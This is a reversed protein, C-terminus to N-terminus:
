AINHNLGKLKNYNTLAWSHHFRCLQKNGVVAGSEGVLCFEHGNPKQYSLTPGNPLKKKKKKLKKLMEIVNVSM